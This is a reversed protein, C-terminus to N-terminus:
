PKSVIQEARAAFTRLANQKGALDLTSSDRIRPCYATMLYNVIEARPANPFRSRLVAVTEGIENESGTGLRQGVAAVRQPSEKLIGQTGGSQAVPCELQSSSKNSCGGLLLIITFCAQLPRM